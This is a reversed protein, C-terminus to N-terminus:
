GSNLIAGSYWEHNGPLSVNIDAQMVLWDWKGDTDDDIVYHGYAGTFEPPRQFDDFLYPTTTSYPDM